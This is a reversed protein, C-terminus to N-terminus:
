DRIVSFGFRNTSRWNPSLVQMALPPWLRRWVVEGGVIDGRILRGALEGIELSLIVEAGDGIMDIDEADCRHLNKDFVPLPEDLHLVLRDKNDLPIGFKHMLEQQKADLKFRWWLKGVADRVGLRSDKVNCKLTLM